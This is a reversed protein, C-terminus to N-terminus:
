KILERISAESIKAAYKQSVEQLDSFSLVDGLLPANNIDRMVLVGEHESTENMLKLRATVCEVIENIKIRGFSSPSNYRVTLESLDCHPLKIYKNGIVEVPNACRFFYRCILGFRNLKAKSSVYRAFAEAKANFDAVIETNSPEVGTRQVLLDIRGRAINCVYKKNESRFTVLPVDPPLDPPLDLMQPNGDFIHMMSRNLDEFVSFPRFIPESFFLGFQLSVVEQKM